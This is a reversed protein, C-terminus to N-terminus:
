TRVRSSAADAGPSAALTVKLGANPSVRRAQGVNGLYDKLWTRSKGDALLADNTGPPLSFSGALDIVPRWPASGDIAAAAQGAGDFAPRASLAQWQSQTSLLRDPPQPDSAAAVIPQAPVKGAITIRGDTPDVGAQPAVGLTLRGDNLRAYQLDIMSVGPAADAKIRLDIDLLTGSGAPLADLRSMDVTVRGAQQGSVFWGFDGTLSGRRVEVLEFRSADYVIRLQVSELGAAADIRVPVTVLQGAEAVADIPVDVLPDPGAFGLPGIGNPIPPIELRDATSAGTLYSVEQLVRSADISTLSGSANIDAVILPDVNAYAAFGSDLKVLVRQIRQGDLTGYAGDGSTDGLYAVLHLADDGTASQGDILVDDLDLLDKAGYAATTPVQAEIRLLQVKGAALAIPSSIRVKLVGDPMPLRDITASGPLDAGASVSQVVLDAPDYRLTFEVSTVGAGDSLYLPLLGNQSPATLDVSQGPGRMFDPLSLTRGSAAVIFSSEFADGALGDGNGDLSGGALDRFASTGSELRVTYTDPALVDGTRLFSLGQGDADVILSGKVAGSALGFLTLDPAGLQAAESDYLNLAAPDIAHNFRVQFGSATPTLSTVKLAEAATVQVPLTNAAYSGDEDTATATISVAGSAAYAHTVSAPNGTIDDISGDGWNIRWNSISDQGPDSASLDLTYPEGLGISAAGSLLLTPAVDLISVDFSATSFAGATDTARVVIRTSAPGDVPTWAFFGSAADISAGAPASDLSFSLADNEVDAASVTFGLRSGEDVTQNAIPDLTPADNVPRITLTVLALNSDFQGDNARYTFSDSGFYDADPTYLFGGDPALTLTGHQPQDVVVATLTPSDIDTD